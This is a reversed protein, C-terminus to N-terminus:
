GCFRLQFLVPSLLYFSNLWTPPISPVISETSIFKWGNMRSRCNEVTRSLSSFTILSHEVLHLPIVSMHYWMVAYDRFIVLNVRLSRFPFTYGIHPSTGYKNKFRKLIQILNSKIYTHLDHWLTFINIVLLKKKKCILYSFFKDVCIM